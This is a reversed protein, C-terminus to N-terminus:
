RSCVQNGLLPFGIGVGGGGGGAALPGGRPSEMKPTLCYGPLVRLGEGPPLSIFLSDSSEKPYDMFWSKRGGARVSIWSEPQDGPQLNQPGLLPELSEGRGSVWNSTGRTQPRVAEPESRSGLVMSLCSGGSGWRHFPILLALRGGQETM